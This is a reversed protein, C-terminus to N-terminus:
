SHLLSVIRSQSEAKKEPCPLQKQTSCGLTKHSAYATNCISLKRIGRLKATRWYFAHEQRDGYHLKDGQCNIRPYGEMAKILKDNVNQCWENM